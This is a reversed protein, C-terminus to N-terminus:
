RHCLVRYPLSQIPCQRTNQTHPPHRRARIVAHFIRLTMSGHLSGKRLTDVTPSAAGTAWGPPIPLATSRENQQSGLAMTFAVHPQGGQLEQVHPASVPSRPSTSPMQAASCTSPWGPSYFPLRDWFASQTFLYIDMGRHEKDSSSESHLTKMLFHDSKRCFCSPARSWFHETPARPVAQDLAHRFQALGQFPSLQSTTSM